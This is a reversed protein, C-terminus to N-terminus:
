IYYYTVHDWRHLSWGTPQVPHCLPPPLCFNNHRSHKFPASAPQKGSVHKPRYFASHEAQLQVAQRRENDSLPAWSSLAMHYVTSSRFGPPPTERGGTLQIEDALSPPFFPLRGAQGGGGVCALRAAAAAAAACQAKLSSESCESMVATVAEVKLRVCGVSLDM